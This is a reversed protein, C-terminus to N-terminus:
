RPYGYLGGGAGRLGGTKTALDTAKPAHERYPGFMPGLFCVLLTAMIIREFRSLEPYLAM